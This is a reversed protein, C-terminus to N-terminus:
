DTNLMPSTFREFSYVTSCGISTLEKHEARKVKNKNKKSIPNPINSKNRVRIKQQSLIKTGTL